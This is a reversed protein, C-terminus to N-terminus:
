PLQSVKVVGNGGEGWHNGISQAQCTHLTCLTKCFCCLSTMRNLAYRQETSMLVPQPSCGGEHQIHGLPEKNVCLILVAHLHGSLGM